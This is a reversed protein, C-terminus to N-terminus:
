QDGEFMFVLQGDPSTLIINGLHGDPSPIEETIEIGSKKLRDIREPMDMSFYTIALTPIDRNEHLGVQTHGDMMVSYPYPVNSGRAKIFGLMDWFGVETKLYIAGISLETVRGCIPNLVGSPTLLPEDAESRVAFYVANPSKLRVEGFTPGKVDGIVPIGLATLTDKLRLMNPARFMMVPSPQLTKVLTIFIQGDTLTLSSDLREVKGPVPNFGMRAWWAMSRIVDTSSMVLRTYRGLLNNPSKTVLTDTTAGRKTADIAQAYLSTSGVIVSLLLVILQKM